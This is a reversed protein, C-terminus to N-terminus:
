NILFSGYFGTLNKLYITRGQVNAARFRSRKLYATPNEHQVPTVANVIVFLAAGPLATKSARKSARKSV